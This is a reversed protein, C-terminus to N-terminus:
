RPRAFVQVYFLRGNQAPAVGAGMETYDTSVINERHGPSTMWGAVVAAANPYGEAVNEGAYSRRYGVAALRSDMTPYSAGPLEHAMRNLAAMQNAQLQAARMLQENRALGPLKLRAREGNTRVVIDEAAASPPVSPPPATPVPAPAAAVSRCASLAAVTCVFSFRALTNVHKRRHFPIHWGIM